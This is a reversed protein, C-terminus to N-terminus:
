WVVSRQVGHHDDDEDLGFNRMCLWMKVELVMMLFQLIRLAWSTSALTEEMSSIDCITIIVLFMATNLISTSIGVTSSLRWGDITVVRRGNVSTCWFM